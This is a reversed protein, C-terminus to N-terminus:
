NKSLHCDIEHVRFHAYKEAEVIHKRGNGAYCVYVVVTGLPLLRELSCQSYYLLQEAVRACREELSSDDASRSDPNLRICVAPKADEGVGWRHDDLEAIECSLERDRHSREDIEFGIVRDELVMMADPRRRSTQCREAGILQSDLASWNEACNYPRPMNQLILRRAQHEIRERVTQDCHACM